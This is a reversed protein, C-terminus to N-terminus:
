HSGSKRLEHKRKVNTATFLFSPVFRKLEQDMQSWRLYKTECDNISAVEEKADVVM